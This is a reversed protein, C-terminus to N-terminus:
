ELEALEKTYLAWLESKKLQLKFIENEINIIEELIEKPTM